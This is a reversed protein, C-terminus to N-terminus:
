NEIYFLHKYVFPVNKLHGSFAFAGFNGKSGPSKGVFHCAQHTTIKDDKPVKEIARIQSL